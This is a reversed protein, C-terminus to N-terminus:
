EIIIRRDHSADHVVKFSEQLMQCTKIFEDFSPRTEPDRRTANTILDKIKQGQETKFIPLDFNLEATEKRELSKKDNNLAIIWSRPSEALDLKKGVMLDYLMLGIQYMMFEKANIPRDIRKGEVIKDFDHPDYSGTTMVNSARVEGNQAVFVVSKLDATIVKCNERLLFNESKIDMYAMGIQYLCSAFTAVQESFNLAYKSVEEDSYSKKGKHLFSFLDGNSCFESVAINLCGIDQGIPCYLIDQALYKHIPKSQNVQAVASFYTSDAQEVRVVYLKEGTEPDEILWNKNNSGGLYFLKLLKNKVEIQFLIPEPKEGSRPKKDLQAVFEEKKIQNEMAMVIALSKQSLFVRNTEALLIRNTESNLHSLESNVANLLYMFRTKMRVKHDLTKDNLVNIVKERLKLLSASLTEKSLADEQYSKREADIKGILEDMDQYQVSRKEKLHPKTMRKWEELSVLARETPLTIIQNRLNWAESDLHGQLYWRMFYNFKGEFSLDTNNPDQKIENLFQALLNDALGNIRQLLEMNESVIDLIQNKIKADLQNLDLPNTLGSLGNVIGTKIVGSAGVTTYQLANNPLLKLYVTNKKLEQQIGEKLALKYLQKNQECQNNYQEILENLHRIESINQPNPVPKLPM